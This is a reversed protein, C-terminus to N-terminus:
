PVITIICLFFVINVTPLFCSTPLLKINQSHGSSPVTVQVLRTKSPQSFRSIRGNNMSSLRESGMVILVFFGQFTSPYRTGFVGLLVFIVTVWCWKISNNIKYQFPLYSPSQFWKYLSIAWFPVKLDRYGVSSDVPIYLNDSSQICEFVELKELTVWLLCCEFVDWCHNSLIHQHQKRNTCRCCFTLASALCSM